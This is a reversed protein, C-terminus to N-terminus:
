PWARIILEVFWALGLCLLGGFIFAITLAIIAAVVHGLSAGWDAPTLKRKKAPPKPPTPSENSRQAQKKEQPQDQRM